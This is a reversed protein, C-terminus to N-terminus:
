EVVDDPEPDLDEDVEAEDLTEDSKSVEDMDVTEELEEKKPTDFM